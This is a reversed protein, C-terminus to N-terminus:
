KIPKAQYSSLGIIFGLGAWFYFAVHMYMFGSFMSCMLLYAVYMAAIPALCDRNKMMRWVFIVCRCFMWFYLTVGVLGYTFLAEIWENHVGTGLYAVTSGGGEGLLFVLFDRNSIETLADERLVDRGSGSRLSDEDFRSFLYGDTRNNVYILVIGILISFIITPWLLKRTKGIMKYKTYYYVLLMMPLTVIAGRKFSLMVAFISIILFTVRLWNRKILFIFPILLLVYYIFMTTSNMHGIIVFQAKAKLNLGIWVLLMVLFAALIHRYNYGNNFTYVAFFRLTVIWWVPFMLYFFTTSPMIQNLTCSIILWIAIYLLPLSVYNLNKAGLRSGHKFIIYASELGILFLVMVRVMSRDAGELVGAQRSTSVDYYGYLALVIFILASLFLFRHQKLQAM